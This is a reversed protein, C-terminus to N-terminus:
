VNRLPLVLHKLDTSDKQAIIMPSNNSFRVELIDEADYIKLVPILLKTNVLCHLNVGNFTEWKTSEHNM